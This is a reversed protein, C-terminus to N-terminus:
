SDRLINVDKTEIKETILTDLQKTLDRELIAKRRSLDEQTTADKQNTAIFIINRLQPSPADVDFAAVSTFVQSLTKHLSLFLSHKPATINNTLLIGNKTLRKKALQYFELTQLSLPTKNAVFADVIIVDYKKANKELFARGDGVVMNIKKPDAGFQTKAIAVVQPDVEIADVVVGMDAFIRPGTFGGGGIFLASKIDTFLFPIFIYHMYDFVPNLPDKKDYGSQGVGNVYLLKVEKHDRVEVKVEVDLPSAMVIQLM